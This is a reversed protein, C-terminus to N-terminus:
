GDTAEKKLRRAASTQAARRQKEFKKKLRKIRSKQYAAIVPRSIAYAALGALVGPIIGGVLYPLFVRSMFLDLGDFEVSGGTLLANANTWLEVSVRSFADFTEDLPLPHDQGLLKSGLGVSVGAIVPFTIPNGVFTALLAAVINGGMLWALGAAVLFHLGFLPTFSTFVGAAIGRSIKYAPDPLRRLRHVMYLIARWWGGRPYLWRGMHALTSRPKRRKFM